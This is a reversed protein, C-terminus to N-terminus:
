PLFEGGSTPPPSAASASGGSSPAAQTASSGATTAVPQDPAAGGATATSEFGFETQPTSTSRKRIRRKHKEPKASPTATPVPTVAVVPRRVEDDSPSNTSASASTRQDRATREVDKKDPKPREHQRMVRTHDPLVGTALCYTGAGGGICLSLLAALATGRGGGSATLQVGTAVDSGHFRHLLGQAAVRAASTQEPSSDAPSDAVARLWRAPAIGALFPLYLAIRRTRSQQLERVTARCSACHRLHPRLEVVDTATANGEVLALLTPAVQECASGDDISAFVDLFRRRGETIARNVKTYTWGNRQGIERYSFGEARLLLATREDAKLRALAELSRASREGREVQEDVGVDGSPLRTALDDGDVPISEARSRRVALAENRVVVRLWALETAPEVHDLRRLYIELARQVVDEADDASGSWRRAVRMLTPYHNALVSEVRASAAADTGARAASATTM